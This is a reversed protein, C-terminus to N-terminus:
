AAVVLVAESQGSEVFASAQALAYVFGSCAAHIDYAYAKHAGLRTAVTTATAPLQLDPTVTALIVVDIETSDRGASALAGEAAEIALSATSDGEGAVRRYEIGTRAFIWEETVGARGALEANTLKKEPAAKAIGTIASGRGPALQEM